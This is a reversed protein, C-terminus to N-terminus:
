DRERTGEGKRHRFDLMCDLDKLSDVQSGPLELPNEEGMIPSPCADIGDIGSRVLYGARLSHQFLVLSRGTDPIGNRHITVLLPRKREPGEYMM